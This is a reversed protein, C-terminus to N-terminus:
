KRIRRMGLIFGWQVKLIRSEFLRGVLVVGFHRGVVVWVSTLQRDSLVFVHLFRQSIVFKLVLLEMRVGGSILFNRFKVFLHLPDIPLNLFYLILDILFNLCLLLFFRFLLSLFLFPLFFFSSLLSIFLHNVLYVFSLFSFFFFCLPEPM